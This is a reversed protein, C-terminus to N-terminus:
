VLLATWWQEPTTLDERLQIDIHGCGFLAAQFSQSSWPDAGALGAIDRLKNASGGGFFCVADFLTNADYTTKERVTGAVENLHSIQAISIAKPTNNKNRNKGPRGRNRTIENKKCDVCTMRMPRRPNEGRQLTECKWIHFGRVACSEAYGELRSLGFSGIEIMPLDERPDQVLDGLALDEQWEVQSKLGGEVYMGRIFRKSAENFETASFSGEPAKRNPSYYLDPALIFRKSRPYSADSLTIHLRKKASNNQKLVLDYYGYELEKDTDVQLVACREGQASCIVKETGKLLDARVLEVTAMGQATVGTAELGSFRHWDQKILRLGDTVSISTGGLPSLCELNQDVEEEPVQM